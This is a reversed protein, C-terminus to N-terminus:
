KTWKEFEYALGNLITYDKTFCPKFAMKYGNEFELYYNIYNREIGEKDVYTKNSKVKLVRM